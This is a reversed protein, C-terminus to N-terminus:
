FLSYSLGINFGSSKSNDSQDSGTTDDLHTLGLDYKLSLTFKDQTYSIEPVLGLRISKTQDKIDDKNGNQDTEALLLLGTNLGLSLNLNQNVKYSFKPTIAIYAINIDLEKKTAKITGTGNQQQYTASISFWNMKSSPTFILGFELGNGAAFGVEEEPELHISYNTFGAFLSLTREQSITLSFMIFFSLIFRM